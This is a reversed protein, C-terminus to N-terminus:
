LNISLESNFFTLLCGLTRTLGLTSIHYSILSIFFFRLLFRRLNINSIPRGHKVGRVSKNKLIM